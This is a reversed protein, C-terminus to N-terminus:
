RYLCFDLGVVFDSKQLQLRGDSYSVILADDPLIDARALCSAPIDLKFINRDKDRTDTLQLLYLRNARAYRVLELAREMGNEQFECTILGRQPTALLVAGAAHGLQSLFKGAIREPTTVVKLAGEPIKRARVFGYEYHALTKDGYLLGTREMSVGTVTLHPKKFINCFHVNKLVGGKERTSRALKSYSPISNCLTFTFGFPEPLFQVLSNPTFGVTTLWDTYISLQPKNKSSRTVSILQTTEM